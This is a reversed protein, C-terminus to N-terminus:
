CLYYCMIGLIILIIIHLTYNKPRIKPMFRLMDKTFDSYNMEMQDYYEQTCGFFSQVLKYEVSTGDFWFVLNDKFYYVNKDYDTMVADLPYPIEDFENKSSVLHLEEVDNFEWYYNEHYLLIVNRHNDYLAADVKDEPFKEELSVSSVYHNNNFPMLEKGKIIYIEEYLPVYFAADCYQFHTDLLRADSM